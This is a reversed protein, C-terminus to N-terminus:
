KAQKEVLVCKRPQLVPIILKEPFLQSFLTVHLLCQFLFSFFITLYFIYKQCGYLVLVCMSCFSSSSFHLSFKFQRESSKKLLFYFIFQLLLTPNGSSWYYHLCLQLVFNPCIPVVFISLNFCFLFLCFQAFLLFIFISLKTNKKKLNKYKLFGLCAFSGVVSWNASKIRLLVWRDRETYCQHCEDDAIAWKAWKLVVVM